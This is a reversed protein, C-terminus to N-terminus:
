QVNEMASILLCLSSQAAIRNLNDDSMYDRHSPREIFYGILSVAEIMNAMYWEKFVDVSILNNRTAM